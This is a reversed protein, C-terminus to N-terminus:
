TRGLEATGRSVTTKLKREARWEEFWPRLSVRPFISHSFRGTEAVDLSRQWEDLMRQKAVPLFDRAVSQANYMTSLIVGLEHRTYGVKTQIDLWSVEHFPILCKQSSLGNLKELKDHLPHGNKQFTNVLYRFKLSFFRHRLPPIGSLVGLSNNPTSVMLGMSIRLARYQIRELLLMHTRAMGAFCVSGYELVSGILSGYVLLMCSPHAGWSV